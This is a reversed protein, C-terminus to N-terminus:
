TLAYRSILGGMSPGIIVIKESSGNQQLQTNVDQILKVLVYANREIFDAGGDRYIPINAYPPFPLTYNGISYVPFNLIIIDSGQANFDTVLNKQNNANDFYSLYRKYILQTNRSDGPDFGDLIIIPKRLTKDNCNAYYINVEGKGQSATTEDYGQFAIDAEITTTTCPLSPDGSTTRAVINGGNLAPTITIYSYTVQQTGNTFNVNYSIIKDGPTPYNVTVAGGPTMTAIPNGDGFDIVVNSM